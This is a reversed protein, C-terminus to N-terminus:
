QAWVQRRCPEMVNATVQAGIQCETRGGGAERKTDLLQSGEGQREDQGGELLSPRRPELALTRGRCGVGWTTVRYGTPKRQGGM